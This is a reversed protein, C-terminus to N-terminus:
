PTPKSAADVRRQLAAVLVQAAQEVTTTVGMTRLDITRLGAYGCPNILDYPHLDMAVNLAVGHWSCGHTVKLGLAAVKCQEHPPSGPVDRLYVGPAGDKREGALGYSALTDIVADEIATVLERVLLNRRRLDVLVYVVIQGPGHYTIQGGRETRVVPINSSHLLHEEKGALGLTFIPKHEILWLTDATSADRSLTFAQMAERVPEYDADRLIPEVQWPPIVTSM